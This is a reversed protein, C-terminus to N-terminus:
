TREKLSKLLAASLDSWVKKRRIFYLDGDYETLCKLVEESPEAELVAELAKDIYMRATKIDDPFEDTGTFRRVIQTALGDLQKHLDTM